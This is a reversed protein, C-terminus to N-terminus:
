ESLETVYDWILKRCRMSYKILGNVQDYSNNLELLGSFLDSFSNITKVFFKLQEPLQETVVLLGSSSLSAVLQKTSTYNLASSNSAELGPLNKDSFRRQMQIPEVSELRGDDIARLKAAGALVEGAGNSQNATGFYFGDVM